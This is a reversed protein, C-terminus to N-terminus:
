KEGGRLYDISVGLANALKEWTRIDGGVKKNQLRSITAATLGTKEALEVLTIGQQKRLQEIRNVRKM